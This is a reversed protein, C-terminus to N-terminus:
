RAEDTSTSLAIVGAVLANNVTVYVLIALVVAGLGGLGNPWGHVGGTRDIVEYAAAAAMVVAAISFANRYFPVRAPKWVRLWLHLYVILIVTAALAPPLLVAAAFTWVSSLDFYSTGSVRRRIREVGTAIETHVVGLLTLLATILM